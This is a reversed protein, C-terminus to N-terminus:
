KSKEFRGAKVDRGLEKSLRMLSECITKYERGESVEKGSEKPFMGDNDM